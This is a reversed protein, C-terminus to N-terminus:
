NIIPHKYFLLKSLNHQIESKITQQPPNNGIIFHM